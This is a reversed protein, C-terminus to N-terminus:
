IDQPSLANLIWLVMHMHLTLRGQQEMIGYYSAANGYLGSHNVGIDLVHKIFMCVM